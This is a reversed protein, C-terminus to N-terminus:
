LNSLPDKYGTLIVNFDYIVQWKDDDFLAQCGAKWLVRIEFLSATTMDPMIYGTLVTPLGPITIDWMHMLM